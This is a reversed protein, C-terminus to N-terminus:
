AAVEVFRIEFLVAGRAGVPGAEYHEATIVSSNDDAILGADRFGDVLAKVTPGYNHLDRARRDPWRIIVHMQAQEIPQRGTVPAAALKGLLRLDRTRSAKAAWHLRQNSTLALKTPVRVNVTSVVAGRM